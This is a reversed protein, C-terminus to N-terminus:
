IGKNVYTKVLLPKNVQNLPVSSPMESQGRVSGRGSTGGVVTHGGTLGGSRGRAQSSGLQGRRAAWGSWTFAHSASPLLGRRSAMPEPQTSRTSSSSCRWALGLCTRPQSPQVGSSAATRASKAVLTKAARSSAPAAASMHSWSPFVGKISAALVPFRSHRLMSSDRTGSVEMLWEFLMPSVASMRAAPCVRSGCSSGVRSAAPALVQTSETSKLPYPLLCVYARGGVGVGM